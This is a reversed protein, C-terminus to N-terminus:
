QLLTSTEKVATLDEGGGGGQNEGANAMEGPDPTGRVRLRMVKVEEIRLM